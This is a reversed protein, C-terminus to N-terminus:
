WSHGVPEEAEDFRVFRVNALQERLAHNVLGQAVGSGGVIQISNAFGVDTGAGL